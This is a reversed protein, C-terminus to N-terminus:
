PKTEKSNPNLLSRAADCCPSSGWAGSLTAAFPTETEKLFVADVVAGLKNELGFHDASCDERVIPQDNLLPLRLRTPTLSHSEPKNGM